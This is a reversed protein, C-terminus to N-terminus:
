VLYLYINNTVLSPNALASTGAQGSPTVNADAQIEVVVSGVSATVGSVTAIAQANVGATPAGATAAAPATINVPVTGQGFALEGWGARGWGNLIEAM